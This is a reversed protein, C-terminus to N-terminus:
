AKGFGGAIMLSLVPQEGKEMRRYNVFAAGDILAAYQEPCRAAFDAAKDLRLTLLEGKLVPACCATTPM